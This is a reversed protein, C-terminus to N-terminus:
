VPVAAPPPLCKGNLAANALADAATNEARSVWVYRVRSADFAEVAQRALAGLRADRIRWRGSMQEVVLTSDMRVEVEASPDIRAAARLGEILGTYEAANNTTVGLHDCVTAVVNGAPDRVLAGYAAPGPNGRSAGDAEVVYRGEGAPPAM